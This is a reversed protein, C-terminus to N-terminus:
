REAWEKAAGPALCDYAGHCTARFAALHPVHLPTPLCGRRVM